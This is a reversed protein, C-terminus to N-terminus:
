HRRDTCRVCCLVLLAVKQRHVPQPFLYRYFLLMLVSISQDAFFVFFFSIFFVLVQISFQQSRPRFTGRLCRLHKAWCSDVNLNVTKGRRLAYIVESLGMNYRRFIWPYACLSTVSRLRLEQLMVGRQAARLISSQIQFSM